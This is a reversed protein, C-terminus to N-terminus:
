VLTFDRFENNIVRQRYMLFLSYAVTEEGEMAFDHGGISKIGAIEASTGTFFAADAEILEEAKFKKEVVKYGLERAYSMVTSRTIGPVICGRPPTYLIEDKEYFFNVGTGETVYGDTDLLLADDFGKSKAEMAALVSNTYNGCVKTDAPISGPAEKQYSSIMVRLLDDGLYREWEWAAMIIYVEPRDDEPTSHGKCILPRIYANGLNNRQLLQYAIHTLEEPTYELEISMTSASYHLRRFHEMAKFIQPGTGTEYARLGDYVGNGHHLTQSFLNGTSDTAKLWKGNLFMITNRNFYM